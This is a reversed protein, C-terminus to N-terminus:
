PTKGSGSSAIFQQALREVLREMVADALRGQQGASWENLLREVVGDIVRDRLDDLIETRSPSSILGKTKQAVSSHAGASAFYAQLELELEEESELREIKQPPALTEPKQPAAEPEAVLEHHSAEALRAQLNQIASRTKLAVSSLSEAPKVPLSKTPM